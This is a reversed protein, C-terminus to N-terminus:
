GSTHYKAKRARNLERKQRAWEQQSVKKEPAQKANVYKILTLLQELHWKQFEIPINLAIMWYYITEASVYESDNKQAGILEDNFTAASMPNSMYDVIEKVNETTLAAYVSDEVQNLTMCKVYSLVEQPTKQEKNRKRGLFPKHWIAEWKHVSILSHELKLQTEKVNVFVENVEDWLRQEPILITLM